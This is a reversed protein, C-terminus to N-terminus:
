FRKGVSLFAADLGRGANFTGGRNVMYSLSSFVQQDWEAELAWVWIKRGQVFNYDYSWGKVDHMLTVSPRLKTLGAVASFPRQYELGAKLRYAWATATVYGDNTTCTQGSACPPVIEPRGYRRVNVDPLGNVHKVSAEMGVFSKQAGLAAGLQKTFGTQAQVVRFRDYGQFMSGAPAAAAAAGLLGRGSVFAALLDTTNLQVAQGTTVSIENAVVLDWQPIRTASTLAWQQKDEPYDIFYQNGGAPGLAAGKLVSTYGNRSHYHAFHAGFRTGWEPVTYSASVGAQDPRNRADVDASRHTFVGRAIAQAESMQPNFFVRQCGPASYDDSAFFTGCGPDVSNQTALQVFGDVRLADTPAWRLSAAWVPIVGEEPLAGPRVLAAVNRADLDRLGGKFSFASERDIVQRGLRWRLSGQELAHQRELYANSFTGGQFRALRNFGNDSLPQGGVYGNPNNGHAVGHSLLGDDYWLMGSLVGVLGSEHTARLSAQAKVLRSITDGARYNSASDNGNLSGGAQPPVPVVSATSVGLGASAAGSLEYRWSSAGEGAVGQAMAAASLSCAVMALLMPQGTHRLPM